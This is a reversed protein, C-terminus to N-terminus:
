NVHKLITIHLQIKFNENLFLKRYDFDSIWTKWILIKITSIKCIQSIIM